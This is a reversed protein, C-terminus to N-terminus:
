KYNELAGDIVKAITDHLNYKPKWKTINYLKSDDFYRKECDEYGVGYFDKGDVQKYRTFEGTRNFWEDIYINAIKNINAENEKNGINFVPNVKRCEEWNDVISLIGDIADDIYTYCREQTGPKVIELPKGSMLNDLFCAPLRPKWYRDLNNKMSPLWDMDWGCFNQPRVIISNGNSALILQELLIKSTAYVWRSKHTPGMILNTTDETYPESWTKGYVESTSFHIFPIGRDILPRCINEWNVKFDLEYTAIPEEIYFHPTAVAVCNYVLDPAINIYDIYGRSFDHRIYAYDISGPGTRLTNIDFVYCEDGRKIHEKLLHSGIFGDGGFIFVKM